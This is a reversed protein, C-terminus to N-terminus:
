RKKLPIDIVTFPREEAHYVPLLYALLIFLPNKIGQCHTINPAITVNAWALYECFTSRVIQLAHYQANNLHQQIPMIQRWLQEMGATEGNDAFGARTDFCLPRSIQTQRAEAPKRRSTTLFWYIRVVIKWQCDASLRFCVYRWCNYQLPRSGLCLCGTAVVVHIQRFILFYQRWSKKSGASILIISSLGPSPWARVIIATFDQIWKRQLLQGSKVTSREHDIHHVEDVAKKRVASNELIPLFM